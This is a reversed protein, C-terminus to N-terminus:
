TPNDSKQLYYVSIYSFKTFYHAQITTLLPALHHVLCAAALLFHQASCGNRTSLVFAIVDVLAVRWVAGILTVKVDRSTLEWGDVSGGGVQV